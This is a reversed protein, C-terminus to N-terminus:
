VYYHNDPLGVKLGKDGSLPVYALKLIEKKTTIVIEFVNIIM